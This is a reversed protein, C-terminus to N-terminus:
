DLKRELARRSKTADMAFLVGWAAREICEDILMKTDRHLELAIDRILVAAQENETM